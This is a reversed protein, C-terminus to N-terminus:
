KPSTVASGPQRHEISKITRSVMSKTDEDLGKEGLIKRLAPLARKDGYERLANIAPRRDIQNRQTLCQILVPVAGDPDLGGLAFMARARVDDDEDEEVMRRITPVFDKIRYRECAVLGVNRMSLDADELWKRVLDNREGGELNVLLLVALSVRADESTGKDALKLKVFQVKKMDLASVRFSLKDSYIDLVESGQGGALPLVFHLQMVYEGTEYLLRPGPLNFLCEAPDYLDVINVEFTLSFGAQLITTPMTRPLSARKASELRREVANSVVWINVNGWSLMRTSWKVAIPKDSTNTLSCKIRIPDGSLYVAEKQLEGPIFEAKVQVAVNTEASFGAQVTLVLAAVTAVATNWNWANANCAMVYRMAMFFEENDTGSNGRSLGILFLLCTRIGLLFRATLKMMTGM